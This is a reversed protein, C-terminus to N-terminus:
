FTVDMEDFLVPDNLMCDLLVNAKTFALKSSSQLTSLEIIVFTVQRLEVLSLTIAILETLLLVNTM